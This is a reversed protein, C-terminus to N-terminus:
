GGPPGGPGRRGGGPRGGAPPGGPGRGQFLEPGVQILRATVQGQDDPRGFAIVQEGPLVDAPEALTARNIRANDALQVQLQITLQNGDVATVKGIAQQGRRGMGGGFPSTGVRLAADGVAAANATLRGEDDVNGSVALWEDVAIDDATAPDRRVITTDATIAMVQPDGQRPNVTIQDDTIDGVTGMGMGRAMMGGGGPRRGGPRGRQAVVAACLVVALIVVVALARRTFM